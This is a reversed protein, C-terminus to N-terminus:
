EQQRGLRNPHIGRIIYGKYNMSHVNDLLRQFPMKLNVKEQRSRQVRHIDCRLRRTSRQLGKVHPPKENSEQM